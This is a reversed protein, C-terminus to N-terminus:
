PHGRNLRDPIHGTQVVWCGVGEGKRSGSKWPRRARLDMRIFPKLIEVISQSTIVVQRKESSKAGMDRNKPRFRVIDLM